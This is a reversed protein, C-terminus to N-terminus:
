GKSYIDFLMMKRSCGSLRDEVKEIINNEGLTTM